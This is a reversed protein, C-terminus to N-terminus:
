LEIIFTFNFIRTGQANEPSDPPKQIKDMAHKFSLNIWKNLDGKVNKQKSHVKRSLTYHSIKPAQYQVMPNTPLTLEWIILYDRFKAILHGSVSLIM